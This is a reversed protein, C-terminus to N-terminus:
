RSGLILIGFIILATGVWHAPSIVEHFLWSAAAVQIGIIALGQILPFAVHLPLYRLLFTFILVAIFGSLNGVVQWLLFERWSRGQSSLKFSSNAIVNFLVNGATLIVPMVLAQSVLRGGSAFPLRHM